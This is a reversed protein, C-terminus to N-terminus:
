TQRQIDRCLLGYRLGCVINKNPIHRNKKVSATFGVYEYKLAKAYLRRAARFFATSASKEPLYASKLSYMDM